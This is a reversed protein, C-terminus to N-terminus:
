VSLHCLQQPKSCSRLFRLQLCPSLIKFTVNEDCRAELDCGKKIKKFVQVLLIFTFNEFIQSGVKNRAVELSASARGLSSKKCDSPSAFTEEIYGKYAYARGVGCSSDDRGKSGEM